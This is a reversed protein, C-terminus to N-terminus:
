PVQIRGTAVAVADELDVAAGGLRAADVCGTDHGPKDGRAAAGRISEDARDTAAKLQQAIRACLGAGEAFRDVARSLDGPDVVDAAAAAGRLQAEDRRRRM